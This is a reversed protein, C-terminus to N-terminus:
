ITQEESSQVDFYFKEYDHTTTSMPQINMLESSASINASGIATLSEDDASDILFEFWKEMDMISFTGLEDIETYLTNNEEDFKTEIPLSMNLEDFWKFINLRRIGEFEPHETFIELENELFEDAIEFSLKVREVDLNEPYIFETVVGITMDSQIIHSLNSETVELRNEVFGSVEIEVSLQFVENDQNIEKLVARESSIEHLVAREIPMREDTRLRTADSSDLTEDQITATTIPQLAFILAMVLFISLTRRLHRM